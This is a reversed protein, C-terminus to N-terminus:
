YGILAELPGKPLPVLFWVEFMLFLAVSTGIGVLVAQQIHARSAIMFATIFIASSVYIGLYQIALVYILTPGLLFLVRKFSDRGVFSEEGGPEAHVFARQLNVLSALAMFLSIYFPFFGSAPGSGEIWGIGIRWSDVMFVSGLAIFLLSVVMDMTRNTALTPGPDAEENLNSM